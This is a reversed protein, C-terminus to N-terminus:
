SVYDGLPNILMNIVLLVFDLRLEQYSLCFLFCLLNGNNEDNLLSFRVEGNAEAKPMFLTRTRFPLLFDEYVKKPSMPHYVTNEVNDRM